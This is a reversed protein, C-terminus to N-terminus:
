PSLAVSEQRAETPTKFGLCKRPLANLWRETKRIQVESVMKFDTKKPLRRRVLGATNEVSGKEWSHMPACFYSETGLEKNIELHHTNESGNDYTITRRLHEPYPRLVKTISKRMHAATKAPLKSLHTYRTKREVLIRLASANDQGMITDCEWHGPEERLKIHEPRQSISTRSPIHWGRHKKTHGFRQRRRHARAFFPVLDRSDAYVWAYIAEHSITELGLLKLRGSIREPSWGQRLM